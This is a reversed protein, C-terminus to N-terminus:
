GEFKQLSLAPRIESAPVRAVPGSIAKLIFNDRGMGRLGTLMAHDLCFSTAHRLRLRHYCLVPAEGIFGCAIGASDRHDEQMANAARRPGPSLLEGRKAAV